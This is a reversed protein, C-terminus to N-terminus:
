DNVMTIKKELGKTLYTKYNGSSDAYILLAELNENASLIKKSEELGVVMFATAYADADMGTSAVVSASLLSHKVPYGTQPDITHSYKIGNEEYFKRYNGSTALAEDELSLIASLRRQKANEEPKDVGLRWFEGEANTGKTIVEGGLEVMYNDLQMQDLFDAILDTSYGQAIANFDLMAGKKTKILTDGILKFKDKGSLALLSDILSPTITSKNKFGWGYANIVPALTVDFANSTNAAVEMSKLYVEKFIPDLVVTDKSTNLESILSTPLYTSVSQDVVRLISDISVKYNTNTSDLYKIHYTTGQAEGEIYVQTEKAAELKKTTNTCATVLVALSFTWIIKISM